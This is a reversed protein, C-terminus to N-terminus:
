NPVIRYANEPVKAMQWTEAWIHCNQFNSRIESVVAQPAFILEIEVGQPLFLTYLAVAPLKALLWTEHGFIAIKSFRVTDEPFGSSM